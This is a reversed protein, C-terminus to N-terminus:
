ERRTQEGPRHVVSGVFCLVVTIRLVLYAVSNKSYVYLVVRLVYGRLVTGAVCYM